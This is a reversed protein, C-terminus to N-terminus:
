LSSANAKQRNLCALAAEVKPLFHTRSVVIAGVVYVQGTRPDAGLAERHLQAQSIRFKTM